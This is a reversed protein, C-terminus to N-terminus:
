PKKKLTLSDASTAVFVDNIETKYTYVVEPFTPGNGVTTGVVTGPNYKVSVIFIQGATAGSVNLTTVGNTTSVTANQYRKCDATYIVVQQVAFLPFAANDNTQNIDIKFSASPATVQTYYFLVGPAVNNIKGSKVGYLIQELDGATNGVFDACTTATPAIKATPTRVDATVTEDDENSDTGDASAKATNKVSGANLDAQTITHSATCTISEGPDLEGDNNGVTTV